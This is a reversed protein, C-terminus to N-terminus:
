PSLAQLRPERAETLALRRSFGVTLFRLWHHPLLSQGGQIPKAANIVGQLHLTAFTKDGELDVGLSRLVSEGQSQIHIPLVPTSEPVQSVLQLEHNFSDHGMEVSAAM